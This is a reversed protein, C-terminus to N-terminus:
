PLYYEIDNDECWNVAIERELDERFDYWESLLCKNEIMKKLKEIEEENIDNKLSCKDLFKKMMRGEHLENHGPLKIYNEPHDELDKLEKFLEIQWEELGGTNDLDPVTTGDDEKYIIVGTKKNYYYDLFENEYEIAEIVDNLDVGM